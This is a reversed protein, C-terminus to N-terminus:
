DRSIRRRAADYRTRRGTDMSEVAMICAVSHQWGAEVPAQPTEGNRLCQFWNLFHDPREVPTVKNEGRISGDRRIGGEATYVPADGRDLKLLGKEGLVRTSNGFGNGFNTTYSVMMGEPYHWLAHVQDPVTFKNEDKWTYIGGLCVCTEPCGVGTIFHILDIFHSGWQPVPGQCFEVYGYWASYLSPDFRRKTRGMTFDEWNLDEKRVEKNIRPYWYPKEGNRIQEARSIRGLTGAQLLARAGGAGPQSRLQTGVQVIIGSEKVADFARTLEDMGIAMPKECYAHKGAKAAAELHTAHCHDPSAIMVADVDPMALLDRYSPCVKPEHGFWEKAQDAAKRAAVSWPDTVAVIEVNAAQAHEHVAKMHAGIGRGGCGILGIRIRDNAGCVRARTAAAMSPRAALGATAAAGAQLFGRRTLVTNM